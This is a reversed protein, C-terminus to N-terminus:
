CDHWGGRCGIVDDKKSPIRDLVKLAKSFYFRYNKFITVEINEHLILNKGYNICEHYIGDEQFTITNEVM